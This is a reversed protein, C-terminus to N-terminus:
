PVDAATGLVAPGCDEPVLEAARAIAARATDAYEAGGDGPALVGSRRARIEFRADPLPLIIPGVKAFPFDTCRSFWLNYHSTAGFLCRLRPEDEVAEFLTLLGELMVPARAGGQVKLDRYLQHHHRRARWNAEVVLEASGTARAEAMEPLNVFPAAAKIGRPGAGASWAAVAYAVGGLDSTRGSAKRVDSENNDFRFCRLTRLVGVSADARSPLPSVIRVETAPGGVVPVVTGIELGLEAAVRTLEAAIGEPTVAEPYWDPNWLV